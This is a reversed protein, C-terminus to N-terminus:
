NLHQTVVYTQDRHTRMWVRHDIINDRSLVEDPHHAFYM